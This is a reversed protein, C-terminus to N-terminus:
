RRRKSRGGSCRWWGSRLSYSPSACCRPWRRVVACLGARACANSRTLACADVAAPVARLSARPAPSAPRRRLAAAHPPPAHRRRPRHARARAQRREYRADKQLDAWKVDDPEPAVDVDPRGGAAQAAHWTPRPDPFWCPLLASLRRQLWNARCKRILQNRDREYLFVVFAHGTSVDPERRFDDLRTLVEEKAEPCLNLPDFFGFPSSVGPMTQAFAKGNMTPVTMSPVLSHIMALAM